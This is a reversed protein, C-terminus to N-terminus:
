KENFVEALAHFAPRPNREFDIVAISVACPFADHGMWVM